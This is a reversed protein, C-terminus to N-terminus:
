KANDGRTEKEYEYDLAKRLRDRLARPERASFYIHSGDINKSKSQPLRDAYEELYRLIDESVRVLQNKEILALEPHKSQTM